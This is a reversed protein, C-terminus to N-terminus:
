VHAQADGNRTAYCSTALVRYLSVGALRATYRRAKAPDIDRLANRILRNCWAIAVSPRSYTTRSLSTRAPWDRQMDLEVGSRMRPSTDDYWRVKWWRGDLEGFLLAALAGTSM